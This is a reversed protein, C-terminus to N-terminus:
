QRIQGVSFASVSLLLGSPESNFGPFNTPRNGSNPAVHQQMLLSLFPYFQFHSLQFSFFLTLLMFLYSLRDKSIQTHKPLVTAPRFNFLAWFYGQLTYFNRRLRCLGVIWAANFDPNSFCPNLTSLTKFLLLPALKLAAGQFATLVPISFDTLHRAVQVSRFVIIVNDVKTESTGGRNLMFM